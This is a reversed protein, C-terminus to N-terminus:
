HIEVGIHRAQDACRQRQAHVRAARLEWDLALAIGAHCLHGQLGWGYVVVDDDEVQGLVACRRPLLSQARRTCDSKWHFPLDAFRYSFTGPVAHRRHGLPLQRTCAELDDLPATLAGDNMM